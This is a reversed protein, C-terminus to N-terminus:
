KGVPQQDLQIWRVEGIGRLHQVRAARGLDLLSRMELLYADRYPKNQADKEPDSSSAKVIGINTETRPRRITEGDEVRVRRFAALALALEEPTGDPPFYLVNRQRIGLYAALCTLRFRRLLRIACM